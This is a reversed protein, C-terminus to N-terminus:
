QRLALILDDPTRGKLKGDELMASIELIAKAFFPQIADHERALKRLAHTDLETVGDRHMAFLIM